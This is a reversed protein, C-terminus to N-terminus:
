KYAPNRSPSSLHSPHSPVHEPFQGRVIRPTNIIKRDRQRNLLFNRGYQIMVARPTM